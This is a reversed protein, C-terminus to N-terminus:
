DVVINIIIANYKRKKKKETKFCTTTCLFRSQILVQVCEPTLPGPCRKGHWALELGVPLRPPLQHSGTVIRFIMEEPCACSSQLSHLRGRNYYMCIDPYDNLEAVMSDMSMGRTLQSSFCFTELRKGAEELLFVIGAAQDFAGTAYILGLGTVLLTVLFLRFNRFGQERKAQRGDRKSTNVQLESVTM